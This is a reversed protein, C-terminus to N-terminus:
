LNIYVPIGYYLKPASKSGYLNRKLRAITGGKFGPFLDSPFSKPFRVYTEEESKANTFAVSIDWHFMEWNNGFALSILLRVTSYDIVPAYTDFVDVGIQARSGDMVLRAKYKTIEHHQDRKRKLLILLNFIKKQKEIPVDDIKIPEFVDNTVILSTLETRIAELWLPWEFQLEPKQAQALTLEDKDVANPAIKAAYAHVEEPYKDHELVEPLSYSRDYTKPDNLLDKAQMREEDEQILQNLIIEKLNDQM